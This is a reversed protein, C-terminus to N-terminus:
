KQIRADNPLAYLGYILRKLSETRCEVTGYDFRPARRIAIDEAHTAHVYPLLVM